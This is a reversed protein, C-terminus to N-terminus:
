RPAPTADSVPQMVPPPVKCAVIVSYSHPFSGLDLSEKTVKFGAPCAGSAHWLAVDEALIPSTYAFPPPADNTFTVLKQNDPLETVTTHYCATLGLLATLVIAHRM